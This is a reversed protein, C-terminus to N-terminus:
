TIKGDTINSLTKSTESKTSDYMREKEFGADSWQDVISMRYEDLHLLLRM